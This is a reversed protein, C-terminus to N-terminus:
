LQGSGRWIPSQSARHAPILENGVKKFYKSELIQVWLADFKQFFFFIFALKILYAQNLLSASRLGLGGEEKPRYIQEWSILHIKMGENSSGWVFDRIKKDIEKCTDAPLIYTQMAYAPIAALVSQALTVRGALSLSKAKWGALKLDMRSLIDRYTDKTTRGHLIPVGLYRGLDQTLTIGLAASISAAARRETNKSRFM